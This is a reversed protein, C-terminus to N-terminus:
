RFLNKIRKTAIKKYKMNREPHWMWGEIKLENHKIAEISGDETYALNTFNSTEKVLGWKHYCKIRDPWDNEESILSHKESVHNDIRILNGGDWKALMQFGRCIGLLPIKNKVAYNILFLETKDREPFEGLDNGGSLVIGSPNILQIFSDSLSKDDVMLVNSIQVPLYGAEILWILLEQDLSDRTENRNPIQDIRQSVIVTKINKVFSNM